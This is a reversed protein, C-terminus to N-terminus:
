IQIIEIEDIIANGGDVLIRFQIDYVSLGSSLQIQRINSEGVSDDIAVYVASGIAIETDTGQFRFSAIYTKTNDLDLQISSTLGNVGVGSLTLKVANKFFTAPQLIDITTTGFTTNTWDNPIGGTNIWDTIVSSGQLIPLSGPVFTPPLEDGDFIAQTLSGFNGRAGANTVPINLVGSDYASFTFNYRKIGSSSTTDLNELIWAKELTSWAIAGFDDGNSIDTIQQETLDNIDGSYTGVDPEQYIGTLYESSGTVTASQTTRNDFYSLVDDNSVTLGKARALLMNTLPFSM